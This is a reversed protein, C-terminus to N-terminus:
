GEAAPTEAVPPAITWHENDVTPDDSDDCVDGVLARWGAARFQACVAAIVDLRLARDLGTAALFENVEYTNDELPPAKAAREEMLGNIRQVAAEALSAVLKERKKKANEKAQETLAIFDKYSLAKAVSM